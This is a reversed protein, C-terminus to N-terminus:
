QQSEPVSMEMYQLREKLEERRIRYEKEEIENAEFAEDLLAIERILAEPNQNRKADTEMEPHAKQPALTRRSKLIVYGGAALLLLAMGGLFWYRAQVPKGPLGVISLTIKESKPIDSRSYRILQTGELPAPNFGSGKVQVAPIIPIIDILRTPLAITRTLNLTKEPTDIRYSFVFEKRGPLFEMTDYLGDSTIKVCCSMLGKDLSVETAGPPLPFFLSHLGGNQASDSGILARDGMNEIVLIEQFLAKGKGPKILIHHYVVQLLSDSHTPEYITLTSSGQKVKRTLTVATGKYKVGKYVVVPVYTMQLTDPVNRFIFEGNSQVSTEMEFQSDEGEHTYRTLRIAFRNPVSYGRTGNTIKGTITGSVVPLNLLVLIFAPTLLFTKM